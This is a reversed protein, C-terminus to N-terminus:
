PNGAKGGAGRLPLFFQVRTGTGPQSTIECRGGLNELRTRMSVLGDAGPHGSAPDFGRGDDAVEIRVNGEDVRIGLTVTSAGSHRVANNLAEKLALFLSHRKDSAVPLEPLAPALDFRCGMNATRLFQETYHCFYSALSGLNDNKPNVAWVIEDLAMVMDRARQSIERFYENAEHAPVSPDLGLASTTHIETLGSGLDDHLDHAIRVREREILRAREVVELRRRHRRRLGSILLLGVIGAGGLWCAPAFWWTQWFHPLVRLRLETGEENWYGFHNCAIVRFRYNGPKLHTYFAQRRNGADVWGSELGELQFKFRVRKPAGFSLGAYHFEIRGSGPPVLVEDNRGDARTKRSVGDVVVDEIVVPPPIRIVRLRAPDVVALGRSTAFWFRGDDTRCGTPQSGEPLELSALGESTDLVLCNVSAIDGRACRELDGKDVRFIGGYSGVWLNGLEDPEIHCIFDSPLGQRTTFNSFNGDRYRALGGGYTGIWITGDADACLTQVYEYPLGQPRLFQTFQGEHYRAVGGGRLGLWMSGDPAEVACRTDAQVLDLGLREYAGERWRIVGNQTSIWIAGDQAESLGYILRPFSAPLDLPGLRGGQWWYVGAGLTGMWVRQQRDELIARVYAPLDRDGGVPRSFKRGDFRYVGAGMTGVWVGGERAPSVTQVPSHQWRDAPTVMTLVRNRLLQLGGGNAGVWINKERDEWLSEVWNHALGNERHLRRELGSEDVIFLGADSTGVLVEGTSIERMVVTRQEGWDHAGRDEVWQGDHWRRLRRGDRVWFGGRRAPVANRYGTPPPPLGPSDTWEKGDRWRRMGGGWRVLWVQDEADVLLESYLPRAPALTPTGKPSNTVWLLQGDQNLVLLTGNTTHAMRAIPSTIWDKPMALAHFGEEDRWVLEGTDLGVWLRGAADEHLRRVLRNKLMPTNVDNFVRFSVGDFRALGNFTAVWVFGDRTQVVSRVRDSPLGDEMSWRTVVYDPSADALVELEQWVQARAGAANALLLIFFCRLVNM